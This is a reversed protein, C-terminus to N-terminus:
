VLPYLIAPQYRWCYCNACPDFIKKKYDKCIILGVLLLAVNLLLFWWTGYAMELEQLFAEM